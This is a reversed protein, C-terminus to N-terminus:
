RPLYDNPEVLKFGPTEQVCQRLLFAHGAGYFVVIRDGPRSLQLLNACILFNRRYWATLSRELEKFLSDNMWKLKALLDGPYRNLLQWLAADIAEAKTLEARTAAKKAFKIWVGVADAPQAALWGEFSTQDAFGLIPLGSRKETM